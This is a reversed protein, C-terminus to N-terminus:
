PRAAAIATLWARTRSDTKVLGLDPHNHLGSHTAAALELAVVAWDAARARDGLGLSVRVGAVCMRFRSSQFTPDGMRGLLDRAEELDARGGKGLLIEALRVEEIGTSGSKNSTAMLGLATRLHREAAELRGADHEHAGLLSHVTVREFSGIDRDALIEELMARGANETTRNRSDLLAFAKMQRYQARNYPKARALRLEFEARAPEDWDPSRYWADRAVPAPKGISRRGFM